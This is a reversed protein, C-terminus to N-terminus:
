RGDVISMFGAFAFIGPVAYLFTLLAFWGVAALISWVGTRRDRIDLRRGDPGIIARPEIWRAKPDKRAAAIKALVRPVEQGPVREDLYRRSKAIIRPAVTTLIALASEWTEAEAFDAAGPIFFVLTDDVIEVNYRAADDILAAMVDPTLVYLAERGYAHPAYVHFWRDFDGELSMRQEREFGVPLDGSIRGNSTADLILHPLPSPLEVALYHWEGSRGSSRYSLNGIEVGPAVFRPYERVATRELSIISSFTAVPSPEPEFGNALATLTQRWEKMRARPSPPQQAWRRLLYAGLLWVALIAIAIVLEGIDAATAQRVEYLHVRMGIAMFVFCLYWLILCDNVHVLVQRKTPVWTPRSERRITAM